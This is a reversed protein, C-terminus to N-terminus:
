EHIADPRVGRYETHQLLDVAESLNDTINVDQFYPYFIYFRKDKKLIYSSNSGNPFITYKFCVKHLKNDIMIPTLTIKKAQAQIDPKYLEIAHFSSLPIKIEKDEQYHENIFIASKQCQDYLYFDIRKGKNWLPLLAEKINEIKLIHVRKKTNFNSLILAYIVGIIVVVIM